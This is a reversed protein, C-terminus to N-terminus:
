PESFFELDEHSLDELEVEYNKKTSCFLMSSNNKSYYLLTM